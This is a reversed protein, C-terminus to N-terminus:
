WSTHWWMPFGNIAWRIMWILCGIIFIFVIIGVAVDSLSLEAISAQANQTTTKSPASAPVSPFFETRFPLESQRGGCHPCGGKNQFCPQCCIKGCRVCRSLDGSPGINGYSIPLKISHRDRWASYHSLHMRAWLLRVQVKKRDSRDYNEGGRASHETLFIGM